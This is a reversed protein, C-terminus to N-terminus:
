YAQKGAVAGGGGWVGQSLSFFIFKGKYVNFCYVKRRSPSKPYQFQLISFHTKGLNTQISPVMFYFIVEDNSYKLWLMRQISPLTVRTLLFIQYM